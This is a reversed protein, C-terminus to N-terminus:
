DKRGDSLAVAIDAALGLARAKLEEAKAEKPEETKAELHTEADSSKITEMDGAKQGLFSQLQAVVNSMQSMLNELFARNSASIAQGDKEERASKIAEISTDQNAGVPVVSAEYVKVERLERAKTGDELKVPAADLVDFAFSMQSLRGAKVLKYVQRAIPNDMDLKAKIWWGHDDEGMDEVGGINYAPDDMRHMYMVPLTKGSAKWDKITQSFAGKAVVDGYDDPTRTFTSPYAIFEGEVLDDTKFSTVTSKTQM